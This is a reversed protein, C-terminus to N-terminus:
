QRRQSTPPFWISSVTLYVRGAQAAEVGTKDKIVDIKGNVRAGLTLLQGLGSLVAWVPKGGGLPKASSSSITLASEFVSSSIGYTLRVSM